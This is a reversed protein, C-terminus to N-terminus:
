SMISDMIKQISDCTDDFAIGQAYLYRRIYAVWRIRLEESGRIDTLIKPYDTLIESCGNRRATRELAKRLTTRDYETDYLAHLLYLDYFDRLRTTATNLSFVAVLKEALVTELNYSFIGIRHDDLLLPFSYEIKGPTLADGSTVDVTLPVSIPAYNAKLSIRIGPYDDAEKIDSAGVVEFRIDDEIPVECIEGFVSLLEEHTMPFGEFTLDMDMTSRSDLGVMASILLGGKLVFNHRYHSRSIRELLRELMYHQMVLDAQIQKEKAKNKIFAKLQMPNKTIM